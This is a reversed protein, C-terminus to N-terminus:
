QWTSGIMSTTVSVPWRTDKLLTVASMALKMRSSTISRFFRFSSPRSPWNLFPFAGSAPTGNM